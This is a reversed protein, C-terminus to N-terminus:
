IWKWIPTYNSFPTDGIIFKRNQEVWAHALLSSQEKQVGIILEISADNRLFYKATLAQPLCTFGFPFNASIVKISWVLQNIFRKSYFQQHDSQVLKSYVSKFHNFPLIKLGIKIFLIVWFVKFLLIKDTFSLDM